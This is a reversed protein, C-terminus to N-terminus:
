RAAHEQLSHRRHRLHTTADRAEEQGQVHRHDERLLHAAAQLPQDCRLLSGLLDALSNFYFSSKVECVMDLSPFMPRPQM